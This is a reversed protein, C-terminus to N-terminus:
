LCFYNLNCSKWTIFMKLFHLYAPFPPFFKKKCIEGLYWYGNLVNELLDMGQWTILTVITLGHADCGTSAWDLAACLRPVLHHYWQCCMQLDQQGLRSRLAAGTIDIWHAFNFSSSDTALVSSFLVRAFTCFLFFLFLHLSTSFVLCLHCRLERMIWQIVISQNIGCVM